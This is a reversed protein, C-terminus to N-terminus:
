NVLYIINETETTITFFKDLFYRFLGKSESNPGARSYGIHMNKVSNIGNSGPIEIKSIIMDLFTQGLEEIGGGVAIEEPSFMCIVNSICYAIKGALRDAVDVTERDKGELAIRINKYHINAGDGDCLKYLRSDKNKRLIKEFERLLVAKSVLSEVCGRKGCTCFPGEPDITMHGIEGTFVRGNMLIGAGIGESIAFYIMTDIKSNYVYKYEAYAYASSQNGVILPLAPRMEKLETLLDCNKQIDLISLNIIKESNDIRAPIAVCVALLKETDLHPSKNKIDKWIKKGCGKKYVVSQLFADIEGGKLDRLSYRLTEKNMSLTIIQFRDKNIELMIPKRGSSNSDGEGLVNILGVEVLDDVLMSVTARSLGTIKSIEIRSIGENEFILDFIQKSNTEKVIGQHSYKKKDGNATIFKM